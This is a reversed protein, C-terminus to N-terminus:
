AMASRHPEPEGRREDRGTRQERYRNRSSAGRVGSSKRWSLEHRCSLVVLRRSGQLEGGRWLGDVTMGPREFWMMGTLVGFSDEGVRAPNWHKRVGLM